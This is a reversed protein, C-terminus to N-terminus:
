RWVQACHGDPRSLEEKAQENEAWRQFYASRFYDEFNLPSLAYRSFTM